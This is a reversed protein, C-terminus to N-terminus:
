INRGGILPAEGHGGGSANEDDDVLKPLAIRHAADEGAPSELIAGLNGYGWFKV